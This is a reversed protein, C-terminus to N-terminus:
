LTDQNTGPSRTASSFVYQKTNQPDRYTAGDDLDPYSIQPALSTPVTNNLFNNDGFSLRNIL